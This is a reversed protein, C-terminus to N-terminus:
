ANTVEKNRITIQAKFTVRGLNPHRPDPNHYPITTIEAGYCPTEVTGGELARVWGCLASATEMADAQTESYVDFDVSNIEMVRDSTYGGTRVVHIHPFTQGLTAPVAHASASYKDTTLKSYLATEIDISVTM